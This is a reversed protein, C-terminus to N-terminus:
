LRTELVEEFNNSMWVKSGFIHCPYVPPTNVHLQTSLRSTITRIIPNTLVTPLIFPNLSVPDTDQDFDFDRKVFPCQMWSLRVATFKSFKSPERAQLRIVIMDTSSGGPASGTLARENPGLLFGYTMAPM